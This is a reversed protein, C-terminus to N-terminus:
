SFDCNWHEIVEKNNTKSCLITNVPYLFNYRLFKFIHEYKVKSKYKLTLCLDCHQNQVKFTQLKFFPITIFSIKSRMYSFEHVMNSWSRWKLILNLGFDEKLTNILKNQDICMKHAQQYLYDIPHDRYFIEFHEPSAASGM